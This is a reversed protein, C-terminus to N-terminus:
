NKSLGELVASITLPKVGKEYCGILAEVVQTDHLNGKDLRMELVDLGTNVRFDYEITDEHDDIESQLERNKEKLNNIEDQFDEEMSELDELQSLIDPGIFEIDEGKLDILNQIKKTIENLTSM